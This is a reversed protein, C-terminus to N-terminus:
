NGGGSHLNGVFLRGRNAILIHAMFVGADSRRV